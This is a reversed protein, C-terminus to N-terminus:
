VCAHIGSGKALLPFLPYLVYPNFLLARPVSVRLPIGLWLCLSHSHTSNFFLIGFDARPLPPHTVYRDREAHPALDYFLGRSLARLLHRRQRRM